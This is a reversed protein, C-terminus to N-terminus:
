NGLRDTTVSCTCSVRTAARTLQHSDRKGAIGFIRLRSGKSEAWIEGETRERSRSNLGNHSRSPINASCIIVDCNGPVAGVSKEGPQTRRPRVWCSESRMGSITRREEANRLWANITYGARVMACNKSHIRLKHQEGTGQTTSCGSTLFLYSPYPTSISLSTEDNTSWQIKFDLGCLLNCRKNTLNM